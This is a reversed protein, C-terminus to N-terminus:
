LKVAVFEDRSVILDLYEPIESRYAGSFIAIGDLKLLDRAGGNGRIRKMYDYQDHLLAQIISRHVVKGLNRRFFEAARLSGPELRRLDRFEVMDIESWRSVPYLAGEVIWLINRKGFESISRKGDRNQANLYEDRALILGLWCQGEFKATAILLCPEESRYTEPPIMWTSGVTNKIDVDVDGIRIDRKLGKPVDLLDRLYHEIKLGVFTKEVRDLESIQTRATKVPDLVFDVADKILLPLQQRLKEVGGIKSLIGERILALEEYDRHNLAVVSHGFAM